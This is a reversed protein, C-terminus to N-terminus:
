RRATRVRQIAVNVSVSKYQGSDDATSSRLSVLRPANTATSLGKYLGALMEGFTSCSRNDLCTITPKNKEFAKPGHGKMRLNESRGFYVRVGFIPVGFGWPLWRPACALSAWRWEHGIQTHTAIRGWFRHAM